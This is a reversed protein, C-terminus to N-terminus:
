VYETDNDHSNGKGSAIMDDVICEYSYPTTQATTEMQHPHLISSHSVYSPATMLDGVDLVVTEDQQIVISPKEDNEEINDKTIVDEGINADNCQEVVVFENHAFESCVNIISARSRKTTTKPVVKTAKRRGRGNIKKQPEQAVTRRDITEM